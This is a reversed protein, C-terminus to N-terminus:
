QASHILNYAVTGAKPTNPLNKVDFWQADDIEDPDCNIDGSQWDAHLAIMLQDPYPWHQSSEYRINTIKIGVEEMAERAAAEEVTEGHEIFGALCTYVDTNRQSHRALLVKEGKHVLMIVAPSIRPFIVNGCLQCYRATEYKDDILPGGCCGCFRTNKRWNLLALARSCQKAYQFNQAFLDRLRIWKYGAPTACDEELLVAIYAYEPESFWDRAVNQEFCKQLLAENPLEGDNSILVDSKRFIFYLECHPDKKATIMPMNKPYCAKRYEANNKQLRFIHNPLINYPKGASEKPM